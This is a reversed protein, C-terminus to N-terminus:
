PRNSQCRRRAFSHVRAGRPWGPRRCTPPTRGPPPERRRATRPRRTPPLGEALESPRPPPTRRDTSRGGFTKRSSATRTPASRTRARLRRTSPSLHLHTSRAGGALDHLATRPPAAGLRRGRRADSAPHPRLVADSRRVPSDSRSNRSQPGRSRRGRGFIGQQAVARRRRAPRRCLARSRGWTRTEGDLEDLARRRHLPTPSRPPLAAREPPSRPSTEWCRTSATASTGSKAAM